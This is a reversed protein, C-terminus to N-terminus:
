EIHYKRARHRFADETGEIVDCIEKRIEANDVSGKLRVRVFKSWSDMSFIMEADANTTINANHTVIILQRKQKAKKLKPVIEEFVIRNDMDDEPQDIILPTFTSFLVFSFVATAKEGSSSRTMPFFRKVGSPHYFMSLEDEPRFLLLREFETETLKRILYEFYASFGERESDAPGAKGADQGGCTGEKEVPGENGRAKQLLRAYKELGDKKAFLAEELKRIDEAMLAADGHLAEGLMEHLSHRDGMPTLEMKYNEDDKLVYDIFGKRRSRIMSFCRDYQELLEERRQLLADRENRCAGIMQMVEQRNRYGEAIQRSVNEQDLVTRVTQAPIARNDDPVGADRVTLSDAQQNQLAELWKLERFVRGESELFRKATNLRASVNVLEELIYEKRALIIYMDPITRDVLDLLAGPTTAIEHIQRQLFVQASLFASQLLETQEAPVEQGTEPDLRYFAYQQDDMSRIRSVVMRFAIGHLSYRIEIESDERFIGRSDGDGITYYKKQGAIAEQLASGALQQYVGSLIRVVSSKGSGRGGIICNLQPHFDFRIPQHPNLTTRRVEVSRIWFDPETRPREASDFSMRIRSEATLLSQRISELNVVDDMQIWTYVSGIGWLGHKSEEPSAPNDSFALMPIGMEEARNYCKRWREVERPTADPGYKAQLTAQMADADKDEKFKRWIPVNAVQVADIYGGTLLKDLNAPNMSSISSFEDIHAAIVMAGRKKAIECVEFVSLSTGESSGVTESDIDCRNLFDRVNEAQKSTDFLILMHIKSSDCTIEVGPFVSLGQARGEEMIDTIGRYDNHDTVAVVDLGADLAQAVWEKPTNEKELYCESCMTHLHLDCRMWRNGAYEAM